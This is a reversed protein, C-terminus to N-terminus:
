SSPSGQKANNSTGNQNLNSYKAGFRRRASRPNTVTIRAFKIPERRTQPTRNLSSAQHDTCDNLLLGRFVSFVRFPRIQPPAICTNAASTPYKGTLAQM